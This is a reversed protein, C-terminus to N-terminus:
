EEGHLIYAEDASTLAGKKLMREVLRSTTELLSTFTVQKGHFKITKQSKKESTERMSDLVCELVYMIEGYTLNGTRYDSFNQIGELIFGQLKEFERKDDFVNKLLEM